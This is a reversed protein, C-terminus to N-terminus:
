NVPIYLLSHPLRAFCAIINQNHSYCARIVSWNIKAPVDASPSTGDQYMATAATAVHKNVAITAIMMTSM